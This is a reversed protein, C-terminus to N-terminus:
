QAANDYEVRVKGTSIDKSADGLQQPTPNRLVTQGARHPAGGGGAPPAGGGQSPKFAFDHEKAASTLWEDIELPNGPTVTSFKNPLAAVKGNDVKFVSKAENIIYDLAKPLGGAKTFKEGIATRFTAEDARERDAKATTTLLALADQLPKATQEAVSKMMATIDDPKSVGKEKLTKLETVATKAVTIDLDGLDTKLKRLPEIEQLLKVNNDRFEVVKGNATALDASPVFGTPPGSLDVHFKGDKEVYFQRLPEPVEQLTNVTPALAPM